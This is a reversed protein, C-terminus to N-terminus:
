IRVVRINEMLQAHIEAQYVLNITQVIYFLNFILGSTLLIIIIISIIFIIILYIKLSNDITINLCDWNKINGINCSSNFNEFCCQYSNEIQNFCKLLNINNSRTGNTTQNFLSGLNTDDNIDIEYFSSTLIGLWISGIIQGIIISSILCTIPKFWGTRALLLCRNRDISMQDSKPNRNSTPLLKFLVHKRSRSKIDIKSKSNLNSNLRGLAFHSFFYEPEKNALKKLLVGMCILLITSTCIKITDLLLCYWTWAFSPKSKSCYIFHQFQGFIIFSTILLSSVFMVILYIIQFKPLRQIRREIEDTIM